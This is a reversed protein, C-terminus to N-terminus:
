LKVMQPGELFNFIDHTRIHRVTLYRGSKSIVNYIQNGVRILDDPVIEANRLRDIEKDIPSHHTHNFNGPAAVRRVRDLSKQCDRVFDNHLEKRSKKM